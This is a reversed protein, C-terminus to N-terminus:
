VHHILELTATVSSVALPWYPESPTGPRLHGKGERKEAGERGAGERKTCLGNTNRWTALPKHVFSHRSRSIQRQPSVAPRPRVRM